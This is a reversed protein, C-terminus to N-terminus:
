LEDKPEWFNYYYNFQGRKKSHLYKAELCKYECEPIERDGSWKCTACTDSKGMKRKINFPLKLQEM